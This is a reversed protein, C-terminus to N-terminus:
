GDQDRLWKGKGCNIRAKCWLSFAMQSAVWNTQGKISILYEQKQLSGNTSGFYYLYGCSGQWFRLKFDRSYSRQVLWYDEYFTLFGNSISSLLSTTWTMVNWRTAITFNRSTKSSLGWLIPWWARDHTSPSLGQHLIWSQNLEWMIIGCAEGKKVIHEAWCLFALWNDCIIMGRYKSKKLKPDGTTHRIHLGFPFLM